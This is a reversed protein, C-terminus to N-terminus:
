ITIESWIIIIWCRAINHFNSSLLLKWQVCWSLNRYLFLNFKILIKKVKMWIKVNTFFHKLFLRKISNKWFKWSIKRIADAVCTSLNFLLPKMSCFCKKGWRKLGFSYETNMFFLQWSWIFLHFFALYLYHSALREGNFLFLYFFVIHMDWPQMFIHPTSKYPGFGNLRNLCYAFLCCRCSPLTWSFSCINSLIIEDLILSNKFFLSLILRNTLWWDCWPLYLM